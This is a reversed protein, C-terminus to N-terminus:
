RNSDSSGAGSSGDSGEPDKRLGSYIEKCTPCIPFKKPDRSPVWRKGCLATVPIGTVASEVIKDKRVYHAFREHDGSELNERTDRDLDLHTESEEITSGHRTFFGMRQSGSKARKMIEDMDAGSASVGQSDYYDLLRFRCPSIMSGSWQARSHSKAEEPSREGM